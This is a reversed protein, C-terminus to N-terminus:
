RATFLMRNKDPLSFVPRRIFNGLVYMAYGGFDSSHVLNHSGSKCITVEEFSKFAANSLM